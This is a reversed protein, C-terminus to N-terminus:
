QQATSSAIPNMEIWKEELARLLPGQGWPYVGLALSNYAVADGEPTAESVLMRGDESTASNVAKWARDACPAFSHDLLGHRMAKLFAACVFAAISNELYTAPENLVTHWHGGDSQLDKLATALARLTGILEAQRAIHQPLAALLDVLGLLAWGAGRGWLLGIHRRTADSYGHYPLQTKEDVLVEWFEQAYAAAEHFWANEGTMHGLQCLFPPDSYLCDVYIHPSADPRLLRARQSSRPSDLLLRALALAREVYPEFRSQKYLDLLTVGPALHDIPLLRERKSMWGAVLGEVFGSYRRNNTLRSAALLGELAIWEGYGWVKYRYVPYYLAADAARTIQREIM